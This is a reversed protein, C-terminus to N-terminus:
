WTRPPPEACPGRTVMTEALIPSFVHLLFAVLNEIRANINQDGM